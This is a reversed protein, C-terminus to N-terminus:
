QITKVINSLKLIAGRNQSQKWLFNVLQGYGDNPRYGKIDEERWEEYLAKASVKYIDAADYGQVFRKTAGVLSQYKPHSFYLDLFDGITIDQEQADLKELLLDWDDHFLDGEERKNNEVTWTRGKGEFFSLNTEKLISMTHPLEGHIFEAGGEVPISFGEDTLTHIRGGIRDRAKLIVVAYGQKSLTRAASIGAAGAGVVIVDAVTNEM